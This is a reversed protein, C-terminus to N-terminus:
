EFEFAMDDLGADTVTISFISKGAESALRQAVGGFPCGMLTKWGTEGETVRVTDSSGAKRQSRVSAIADKTPQNVIWSFEVTVMEGPELGDDKWLAMMIENLHLRNPTSDYANWASKATIKYDFSDVVVRVLAKKGNEYGNTFVSKALASDQITYAANGKVAGYTSELLFGIALWLGPVFSPRM